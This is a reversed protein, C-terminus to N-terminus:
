KIKGNGGSALSLEINPTPEQMKRVPPFKFKLLVKGSKAKPDFLRVAPNPRICCHLRPNDACFSFEQSRSIKVFRGPKATVFISRLVIIQHKGLTWETSSRAQMKANTKPDHHTSMPTM